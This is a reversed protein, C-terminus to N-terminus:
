KARLATIIPLLTKDWDMQTIPGTHKYRIVGQKDVIFSEPAGTVGFAIAAHSQPDDGTRTYPNGFQKLWAPGDSRNQEHWDIGYIEIAKDRKLKALFPHEARCAVCWSGFINVIRVEGKLDATAFGEPSGELPALTLEPAPQDILVSPLAHPDRGLGLAFAAGLVILVLAPVFYILRRM